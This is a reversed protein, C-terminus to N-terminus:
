NLSTSTGDAWSAKPRDPNRRQQRDILRLVPTVTSGHLLRLLLVSLLAVLGMIAWLREAQAFTAHNLTPSITSHGSAVSTSFPSRESKWIIAAFGALGILEAIPSELVIIAILQWCTQGASNHSCAAQWREASCSQCSL